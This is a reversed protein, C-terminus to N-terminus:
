GRKEVGADYGRNYAAEADKHRVTGAQSEPLNDVIGSFDSLDDNFGAEFGSEYACGACKHRGDGAQSLPLDELSVAKRHNKQCTM